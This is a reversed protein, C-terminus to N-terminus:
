KEWEIREPIIPSFLICVNREKERKKRKKEGKGRTSALLLSPNAPKLM